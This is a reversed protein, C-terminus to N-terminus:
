FLSTQPNVETTKRTKKHKKRSGHKEFVKSSELRGKMSKRVASLQEKMQAARTKFDVIPRSYNALPISEYSYIDVIDESRLEPVWRKVFECDPDQEILQKTPNYVRLANIGVVGAQMQLQSLHIGPEYDYFVQALHPHIKRWDLHLGFVAFSVIFARMRFNLFGIASLCRMCADVLPFGTLGLKWADYLQPSNEYQIVDYAANLPQFEMQPTTELRQIFHCHWHLRSKFAKLSRMWQQKGKIDSQKLVNIRDDTKWFVYSLSVTGWALHASLRSGHHFAKNPSSIGGSYGQARSELFSHLCQHASTENIVQLQDFQINKLDRSSFYRSFAPWSQNLQSVLNTPTKIHSPPKIPARFIRQRIVPQRKERNSLGRIVGNQHYEFWEIQHEECFSKVTLDRCFTLGNGTEQHSVIRHFPWVDFLKRFEAVVEGRLILVDGGLQQLRLKLEKLATMQAFYHMASYDNARVLDPEIVYVPVVTLSYELAAELAENDHLRIDRKIWWIVRKNSM